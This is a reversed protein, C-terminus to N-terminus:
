KKLRRWDWILTQKGNRAATPSGRQAAGYSTGQFEWNWTDFVSTGNDFRMVEQSVPAAHFDAFLVNAIKKKGHRLGVTREDGYWDIGFGAAPLKVVCDQAVGDFLVVQRTSERLKTARTWLVASANTGYLGTMVATSYIYADYDGLFVNMKYTKTSNGGANATDEGFSPYIPDQKILTYNRDAAGNIDKMNRMLYRDLANFWNCAEQVRGAAASGTLGNVAIDGDKGPQPFINKNEGIYMAFAQGLVRLNSLCQASRAQQRAANLAPLLISILLAIIGIVILLEVLTFARHATGHSRADAATTQSQM